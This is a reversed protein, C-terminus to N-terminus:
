NEFVSVCVSKGTSRGGESISPCLTVSGSLLSSEIKRKCSGAHKNLQESTKSTCEVRKGPFCHHFTVELFPRGIQFLETFLNFFVLFYLADKCYDHMCSTMCPFIGMPLPGSGLKAGNREALALFLTVSSCLVDPPEPHCCQVAWGKRPALGSVCLM